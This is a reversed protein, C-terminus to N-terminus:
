GSGAPASTAAPSSTADPTSGRRVYTGDFFPKWTKGDDASHEIRHHVRGGDAPALRARAQVTTGRQTTYTGAFTMARGEIAGEYRVVNGGSDVWVQRWRRDAPDIFNLSRGTGGQMSTWSEVILCGNEAAEIRSRGVQRGDTNFVDWEGLWFDLERVLERVPRLRRRLGEFRADGRLAELDADGDLQALDYYGADIAGHLAELAADSDKLISLACALNYLATARFQPFQAARRQAEAARGYDGQLHLAYGLRFWALGNDPDVQVVERYAAVAKPWDQRAFYEDARAAEQARVPNRAAESDQRADSEQQTDPIQAPAAAAAACAIGLGLAVWACRQRTM